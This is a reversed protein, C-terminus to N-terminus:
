VLSFVIVVLHGVPIRVPASNTIGVMPQRGNGKPAWSEKTPGSYRAGTLTVQVGKVCTVAEM